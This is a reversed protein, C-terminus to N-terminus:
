HEDFLSLVLSSLQKFIRIMASYDDWTSHSLLVDDITHDERRLIKIFASCHSRSMLKEWLYDPDNTGYEQFLTEYNNGNPDDEMLRFMDFERQPRKFISLLEPIQGDANIFYIDKMTIADKPFRLNFGYLLGETQTHILSIESWFIFDENSLKQLNDNSLKTIMSSEMKDLFEMLNAMATKEVIFIKLLTLFPTLAHFVM